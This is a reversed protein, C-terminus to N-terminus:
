VRHLQETPWHWTVEVYAKFYQMALLLCFMLNKYIQQWINLDELINDRRSQYVAVSMEFSGVAGVTLNPSDDARLASTSYLDTVNCPTVDRFVFSKLV